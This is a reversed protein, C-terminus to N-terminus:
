WRYGAASAIKEAFAKSGIHVSAQLGEAGPFEDQHVPYIQVILVGRDPHRWTGEWMGNIWGAHLSNPMRPDDFQRPEQSWGERTAQERTLKIFREAAAADPLIFLAENGFTDSSLRRVNQVESPLYAEVDPTPSRRACAAVLVLSLFLLRKM